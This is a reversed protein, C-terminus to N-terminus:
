RRREKQAENLVVAWVFDKKYSKVIATDILEENISSNLASFVEFLDPDNFRLNDGIKRSFTALLRQATLSHLKSYGLKASLELDYRVGELADKLKERTWSIPHSNRRYRYVTKSTAYFREAQAMARIFFPPDQFRRLDPFYIKSERLMDTNYIFRHFGYDFQYDKYEVIGDSDFIYDTLTEPYATRVEGDVLDSFSGGSILVDNNVANNYLTELIDDSPYFDDPDMFAVFEGHAKNIGKNRTPGAGINRQKYVQVRKDKKAFETLRKLSTDTSGDDFCIIEIDRLTQGAVSELCQLIYEEVNYVPIIVSIKQRKIRLHYYEEPDETIWQLTEWDEKGFYRQDLVSAEMLARFESSVESFFDYKLEYAIREVTYMYSRFKKWYYLGKYIPDIDNEDIYKKILDFETKVADTKGKNHISSDPNDFRYCYLAKDIYFISEAHCFTRFFFGNDQFSAGPTENHRINHKELFSRKYIGSWTQVNFRFAEFQRHPDIRKDYYSTYASRIRAFEKKGDTEIFRYFDGKVWDVDNEEAADYLAEYMDPEAFDDSEVIGIYKGNAMDMGINVTHGYGANDKSIIKVRPDAAAYERLIELSGDSSGDNVCIIEIDQLTQNVCSDLCERLYQEVNCVPVVVSVKVPKDPTRDFNITEHVKVKERTLRVSEEHKIAESM